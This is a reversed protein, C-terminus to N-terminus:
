RRRWRANAGTKNVKKNGFQTMQWKRFRARWGDVPRDLEYVFKAQKGERDYADNQIQDLCLLATEYKCLTIFLQPLDVTATRDGTDASSLVDGTDEYLVRYQKLALEDASDSFAINEFNNYFACYTDSGQERLEGIAEYSVVTVKNPQPVTDGTYRWEVKVPIFHSEGAVFGASTMERASPTVWAGAQTTHNRASLKLDLTRGRVVDRAAELVDEYPLDHQSPRGLLQYAGTVIESGLISM